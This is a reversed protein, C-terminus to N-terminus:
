FKHAAEPAAQGSSQGGFQNQGQNLQLQNARYFDQSSWDDLRKLYDRGSNDFSHGMPVEGKPTVAKTMYVPKETKYSSINRRKLDEYTTQLRMIVNVKMKHNIKEFQTPDKASHHRYLESEKDLLLFKRKGCRSVVWKFAMEERGNRRANQESCEKRLRKVVERQHLSRGTVVNISGAAAKKIMTQDERSHCTIVVPRSWRESRKPTIDRDSQRPALRRVGEIMTKLTGVNFKNNAERELGKLILEEDAKLYDDWTEKQPAEHVNFLLIQRRALDETVVQTHVMSKVTEESAPEPNLNLNKVMKDLTDIVNVVLERQAKFMKKNETMIRELLFANGTERDLDNYEKAFQHVDHEPDNLIEDPVDNSLIMTPKASKKKRSPNKSDGRTTQFELKSYSSIYNGTLFISGSLITILAQLQAKVYGENTPPKM